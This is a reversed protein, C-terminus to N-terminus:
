IQKEFEQRKNHMELSPTLIGSSLVKSTEAAVKCLCPMRESLLFMYTLRSSSFIGM